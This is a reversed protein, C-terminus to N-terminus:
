VSVPVWSFSQGGDTSRYMNGQDEVGIIIQGDESIAADRYNKTPAATKNWTAGLTTSTFIGGNSGAAAAVILSLDGTAYRVSNFTASAITADTSTTFTSGSNTSYLVSGGVVVMKTGGDQSCTISNLVWLDTLANIATWTVGSDASIRSKVQSSSAGEMLALLTSGTPTCSSIALYTGAMAGTQTTWTTANTSTAVKYPSNKQTMALLNGNESVVVTNPNSGAKVWTAGYNFSTYVQLIPHCGCLVICLDIMVAFFLLSTQYITVMNGIITLVSGDKSM